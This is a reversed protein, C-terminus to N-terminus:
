FYPHNMEPTPILTGLGPCLISEPLPPLCSWWHAYHTGSSKAKRFLLWILIFSWILLVFLFFNSPSSFLMSYHCTSLTFHKVYRYNFEWSPFPFHAHFLNSFYTWTHGKPPAQTIWNTLCRSEEWTMIGPGQSWAGCSAGQEAPLRNRGRARGEGQQARNKQWIFLYFILLFFDKM